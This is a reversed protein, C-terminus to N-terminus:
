TNLIDSFLESIQLGIHVKYRLILNSKLSFKMGQASQAEKLVRMIYDNVSTFLLM